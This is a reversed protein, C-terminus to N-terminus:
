TASEIMIIGYEKAYKGCRKHLMQPYKAEKPATLFWVVKGPVPIISLCSM